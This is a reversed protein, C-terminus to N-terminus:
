ENLTEIYHQIREAKQLLLLQDAIEYQLAVAIENNPIIEADGELIVDRVQYENVKVQSLKLEEELHKELKLDTEIKDKLDDLPIDTNKVVDTLIKVPKKGIMQEDIGIHMCLYDVGLKELDKARKVKDEVGILDVM